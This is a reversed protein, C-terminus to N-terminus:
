SCYADCWTRTDNQWDTHWTATAPTLQLVFIHCSWRLWQWWTDSWFVIFVRLSSKISSCSLLTSHQVSVAPCCPAINCVLLQGSSYLTFSVVCVPQDFSCRLFDTFGVSKITRWFSVLHFALQVLNIFRMHIYTVRESFLEVLSM